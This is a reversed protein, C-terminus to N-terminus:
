PLNRIMKLSIGLVTIHALTVALLPPLIGEYGLAISIADLAYYLFGVLIAVGVCSLGVAKRRLILSFPIALLILIVPTLAKSFRYYLDVKLKRIAGTAGSKSLKNLYDKLQAVNMFEPSQRQRLFDQPSEPINMLEEEYFRPENIIQGNQDYNYTMSQYFTWQGNHYVGRNAVIKKILNQAQDHELITIGEMTQNQPSFKNVFYLRNKLGYMSFNIIEDQNKKAEGKKGKGEFENKLSQIRSNAVPVLRDNMWFALGGILIGLIVVNKILQCISVGLSRMAIIENDRNLKSFAYLISLLCCFPAVQVFIIPLYSLYYNLLLLYDPHQKLIEDLHSFIDIIIYLSFFLLLCSLFIELVQKLIYRELLRM